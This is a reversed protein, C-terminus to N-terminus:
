LCSSFGLNCIVGAVGGNRCFYTVYRVTKFNFKFKFKLQCHDESAARMRTAYHRRYIVISYLFLFFVCILVESLTIVECFLSEIITTQQLCKTFANVSM